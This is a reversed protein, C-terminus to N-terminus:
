PHRGKLISKLFTRIYDNYDIFDYVGAKKSLLFLKILLKYYYYYYKRVSLYTPKCVLHLYDFHESNDTIYEHRSNLGLEPTYITVAVHRLQRSKIYRYLNDFNRKRFDLSLIFMAMLNIDYKQCIRICEENNHLSNQKNYTQLKAETIDELGVLVYYLGIQKFEKMLEEHGAIFDSRGYCIYTRRINRKRIEDIFGRIYSEDYLFDDDVIYVTENPNAEIEDVFDTLERRSYKGKNMLKRICFECFYPCSFSSRIWMAHKCDLYQYNDPHSYFYSRDPLPLDNIDTAKRSNSHWSGNEQYCLNYLDRNGKIIAPLDYYNYGTLICDVEDIFMRKANLQSHQGGLIVLGQCESKFKRAYELMYREQFSRGEIYLIDFRKSEIFRAFSLNEVQLDFITVDYDEKLVSYIIELDLCENEIIGKFDFKTRSEEPRLLLVKKM